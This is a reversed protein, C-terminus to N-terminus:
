AIFFGIGTFLPTLLTLAVNMGMYPILKPINAAHKKAGIFTPIALIITVLGLLCTRPLVGTWVGAIISAFTSLSFFGYIIVGTRTGFALLVNRRGVTRDAEIDPFQNLLLLNNVLFFPVFSVACATWSYSGTLVFDTGMVMLPGFGLGPAVLCIIPNRTIWITYIFVIVLGALGLPLLFMGRVVVFYLGIIGTLIFTILGTALARNVTHPASPLTGSGGSFPTRVTRADLGSRFDFYENLANVSIHASLAGALALFVHLPNVDGQTWVASGFGAFVCVPPLLLFALRMPGLISRLTEM